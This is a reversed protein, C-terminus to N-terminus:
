YFLNKENWIEFNQLSKSTENLLTKKIAEVRNLANDHSMGKLTLRRLFEVEHILLIAVSPSVAELTRISGKITKSSESVIVEIAVLPVVEAPNLPHPIFWVGDTPYQYSYRRKVTYGLKAGLKQFYDQIEKHSYRM